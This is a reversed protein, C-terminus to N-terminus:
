VSLTIRQVRKFRARWWAEREACARFQDLRNLATAVPRVAINGDVPILSEEVLDGDLLSMTGIGCAYPLEPLAAALAVSAALGVSTEVASSVVAPLGCEQAIRLAARVGGLPQVKVVVIDAAQARAVLLPDQARRISEDAAIPVSVQRRVAALEDVSACPQEAYELDYGNLKSIMRVAQDIDWAGNADIRLKGHPGLAHRVAEVRDIDHAESQGREAVKVKATTCGSERVLRAATDPAVAPVICNVPITDRVPVPWHGQAAEQTCALWRAAEHDNYEPFPSFEAVGHPGQVIMGERHTIGRFSTRLPISYVALEHM